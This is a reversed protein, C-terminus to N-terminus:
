ESKLISEICQNAHLKNNDMEKELQQIMTDNYECYEVIEKQRELPPIHIKIQALYEHSINKHGSGIFGKEVISINTNLYYFIYKTTIENKTKSIYVMTQQALSIKKDLFLNCKGSGNTRNQIIYLDEIDYDDVYLETRVGGTHFKYKGSPNGHHTPHKKVNKDIDCIDGLLDLTNDGFMKQNKLCYENLMKLDNIKEQSTKNTKEIFDLYSVIEQQKELSPIPIKITELNTKSINKIGIGMYLQQMIDLNNHLYYYVYKLKLSEDKNQLVYCHDSTSFRIGYNINAEGGDGIILSEKDYDAEDVYTDNKTSSKFFPYLGQKNGFKANRKSKPLFNCIEGLTKVVIGEDYEEEEEIMYEAYNLSYSNNVIDQIPVDILLHKEEKESNFDYFKVSKTQLTKAFTYGKKKIEKIINDRKKVFYFVCTKISTYDFIGAPMYIIEKLDCSKMLYERVAVYAASKSFLDQGDPLVVACRGGINLIHIIKQIFLSVANDSKIPLIEKVSGEFDDYKLGKIGFPPNALVIDFKRKIPDRISDGNDLDFIHGTTILMNAMALNYTEPVIEKGYLSTKISKWNPIIKKQKSQTLISKICNLLFGGTGMTPDCCTEITGDDFLKPQILDIMLNKVKPPTFFQGLVKGTMIDQIVEEYADGLTDSDDLSVDTDILEKFIKKYTHPHKIDFTNGRQFVKETSPHECLIYSWLANINTMINTDPEKALNTFRALELLKPKLELEEDEFPYVYNDIDIEKGIKNELMKLILLSAMNKLAKDGTIGETRLIDLIRKFTAKMKQKSDVEAANSHTLEQIQTMTICPTKKAKHKTLDGKQTFEKKCLECVYIPM